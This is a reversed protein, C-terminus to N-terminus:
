SFYYWSNRKEDWRSTTFEGFRTWQVAGVYECGDEHKSAPLAADKRPTAYNITCELNDEKDLLLYLYMVSNIRDCIDKIIFEKIFM